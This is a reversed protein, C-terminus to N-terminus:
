GEQEGMGEEGRGKDLERKGPEKEGSGINGIQELSRSENCKKLKLSM